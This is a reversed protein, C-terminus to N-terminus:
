CAWRALTLIEDDTLVFRERDAPRCPCAARRDRAAARRLGAQVGQHRAEEAPDAPLGSALTPKFVYFEDPNVTGQVVSEGLGYAGNILVADAFGTETDISFMVGACALDSRVMKQVGVSLAVQIHDFGSHVRYVIARDTFLSAFCRKCPTSCCRPATSTSIPRRSAPSAPTPCTRPPPAAASPSTATPATSPKSSAIRRASTRCSPTPCRPPSFPRGCRRARPRCAISRRRRRPGQPHRRDDARSRGGARIRSLRGGDDCLRGAHPHGAPDPRPANRRAVREQRRRDAVDNMGLTDFWRISATM